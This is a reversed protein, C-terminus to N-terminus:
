RCVVDRIELLRHLGWCACPSVEAVWSSPGVVPSSSFLSFGALICPSPVGAGACKWKLGHGGTCSAWLLGRSSASGLM